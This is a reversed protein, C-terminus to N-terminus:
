KRRTTRSNTKTRQNYMPLGRFFKYGKYSGNEVNQSSVVFKNKLILDKNELNQLLFNEIEDKLFFDDIKFKSQNNNFGFINFLLNVRSLNLGYIRYFDKKM